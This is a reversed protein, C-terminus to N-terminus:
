LPFVQAPHAPPLAAPGKDGPPPALRRDVALWVTAMGGIGLLEELHYRGDEGLSAGSALETAAMAAEMAEPTIMAVGMGRDTGRDRLHRRRPPRRRACSRSRPLSALM